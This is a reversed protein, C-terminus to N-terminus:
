VIQTRGAGAAHGANNIACGAGAKNERAWTERGSRAPAFGNADIQGVYTVSGRKGARDVVSNLGGDLGSRRRRSAKFVAFM